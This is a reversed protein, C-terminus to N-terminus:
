RAWGRQPPALSLAHDIATEMDRLSEFDKSQGDIGLLSRFKAFKQEELDDFPGGEIDFIGLTWVYDYKGTERHLIETNAVTPSLGCRKALDSLKNLLHAEGSSAM